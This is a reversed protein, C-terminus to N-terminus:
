YVYIKQGLRLRDSRLHNWNMLQKVSVRYKRAIHSLTDGNKVVYCMGAKGGRNKGSEIDKIVQESFYKSANYSYLSDPEVAIFAQSWMEPVLLVCTGGSGPVIDNYYKPNLYKLEDLPVGVVESVQNRNDFVRFLIQSSINYPFNGIIAYTDHFM